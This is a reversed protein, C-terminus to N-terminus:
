TRLCVVCYGCLVRVIGESYEWLVWVTGECYGCRLLLTANSYGGFGCLAACFESYFDETKNQVQANQVIKARSNISYKHIQINM